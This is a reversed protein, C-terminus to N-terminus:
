PETMLRFFPLTVEDTVDHFTVVVRANINLGPVEGDELTALFYLGTQEDLEVIVNTWPPDNEFGSVMPSRHVTWSVIRGLGSVSEFTFTPDKVTHCSTCFAVPPHAFSGCHQCRQFKLIRQKAARWFEATSEDVEPLPKNYSSTARDM